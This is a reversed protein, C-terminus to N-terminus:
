DFMRGYENEKFPGPQSASLCSNCFAKVAAEKAKHVTHLVNQSDELTTKIGVTKQKSCEGV